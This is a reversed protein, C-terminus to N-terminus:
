SSSKTSRKVSKGKRRLLEALALESGIADGDLNMHATILFKNHKKLADILEGPVM